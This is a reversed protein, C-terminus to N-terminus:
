GKFTVPQGDTLMGLLGRNDAFWIREGGFKGAAADWTFRAVMQCSIRRGTPDVGMWTGLHTATMEAVVVVGQPGIVLDTAVLEIDPFAEFIGSYFRRAGALGTWRQGTPIIEYRLAAEQAAAPDGVEAALEAQDLLPFSVMLLAEKQLLDSAAASSIV